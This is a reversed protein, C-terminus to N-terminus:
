RAMFCCSQDQEAGARFQDKPIAYKPLPLSSHKVRVHM